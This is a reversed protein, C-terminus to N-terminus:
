ELGDSETHYLTTWTKKVGLLQFINRILGPEFNWGQNTHITHPIGFRCSCENAVVRAISSSEINALPFAEKWNTCYDGIVLIYWNGWPTVPLPRIIGMAIRQLPQDATISLQLHARNKVPSKRSNFLICNSCWKDVEKRQGPSYFRSRVKELAKKAEQYRAVCSDHLSMLM